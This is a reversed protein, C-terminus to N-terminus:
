GLQAALRLARAQRARAQQARAKGSGARRPVSQVHGERPLADDLSERVLVVSGQGVVAPAVLDQVSVNRHRGCRARLVLVDGAIQKPQEIPVDRPVTESADVVSLVAARLRSEVRAEANGVAPDDVGLRPRELM